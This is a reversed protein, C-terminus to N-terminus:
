GGSGKGEPPRSFVFSLAYRWLAGRPGALPVPPAWDGTHRGGPMRDDHHQQHHQQGQDQGERVGLGRGGRGGGTATNWLQLGRLKWGGLGHDRHRAAPLQTPLCGEKCESRVCTLLTFSSSNLKGRFGSIYLCELYITNVWVTLPNTM